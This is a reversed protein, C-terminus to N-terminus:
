ENESDESSSESLVAPALEEDFQFTNLYRQRESCKTSIHGEKKCIFCRGDRALKLREESSLGFPNTPGKPKETPAKPIESRFREPIKPSSVAPTTNQYWNPKAPRPDEQRFDDDICICTDVLEQLNGPQTGAIAKRIDPNLKAKFDFM